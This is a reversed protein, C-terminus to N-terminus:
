IDVPLNAFAAKKEELFAQVARKAETADQIWVMRKDRIFWTMQRRSFAHIAGKLRQVMEDKTWKGQLYESVWRYELGLNALWEDKVGRARLQEVEGIMGQRMREDVRQDIKKYLESRPVDIGLILADYKQPGKKPIINAGAELKEIARILRRKNSTDNRPFGLGALTSSAIRDDSKPENNLNSRKALAESAIVVLDEISKQELEARRKPNPPVNTFQYNDIVAYAYLATGGVLFPLKAHGLIDDIAACALKQFDAVSFNDGPNAVDLLHHPVAAQEDITIKGTGIDLGRYLQRSDASVIEGNFERALAIALWSKGSATPGLIAILKQLPETM